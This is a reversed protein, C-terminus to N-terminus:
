EIQITNNAIYFKHYKEVKNTFREFTPNGRKDQSDPKQHNKRPYFSNQNKNCFDNEISNKYYLLDLACSDEHVSNFLCFFVKQTEKFRNCKKLKEIINQPKLKVFESNLETFEFILTYGLNIEM